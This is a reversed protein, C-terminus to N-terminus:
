APSPTFVGFHNGAPDHLDAFGARGQQHHSAGASATLNEAIERLQPKTQQIPPLPRLASAPIVRTSANTNGRLGQMDVVLHWHGSNPIQLRVPSQKALGGIYRHQRGNRYSQFNGSDLLRVNAASGKLTTEVVDGAQRHGLDSHIFDM